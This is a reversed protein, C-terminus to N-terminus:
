EAMIIDEDEEQIRSAIRKAPEYTYSGIAANMDEKPISYYPGNRDSHSLGEADSNIAERDQSKSRNLERLYESTGARQILPRSIRDESAQTKQYSDGRALHPFSDKRKIDIDEGLSNKILEKHGSSAENSKSTMKSNYPTIMEDTIPDTSSVLSNSHTPSLSFQVPAQKEMRMKQKRLMELRKNEDEQDHNEVPKLNINTADYEDMLCGTAELDSVKTYYYSDEQQKSNQINQTSPIKKQSELFAHTATENASTQPSLDHGDTEYNRVSLGVLSPHSNKLLSAVM